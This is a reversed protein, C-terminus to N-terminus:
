GMVHAIVHILADVPAWDIYVNVGDRSSYRHQYEHILADVPAWDIDENM